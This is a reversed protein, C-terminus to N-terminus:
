VCTSAPPLCNAAPLMHRRNGFGATQKRRVSYFRVDPAIPRGRPLRCAEKTSSNASLLKGSM